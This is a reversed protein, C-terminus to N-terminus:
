GHLDVEQLVRDYAIGNMDGTDRYYYARGFVQVYSKTSPCLGYLAKSLGDFDARGILLLLKHLDYSRMFSVEYATALALLEEHISEIDPHERVLKEIAILIRVRLHEGDDQRHAYSWLTVLIGARTKAAFASQSSNIAVLYRSYELARFVESESIGKLGLADALDFQGVKYLNHKIEELISMM